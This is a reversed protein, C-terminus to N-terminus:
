RYDKFYSLCRAPVESVRWDSFESCPTPPEEPAFLGAAVFLGVVGLVLLLIGALALRTSWHMLNWPEDWWIVKTGECWYHPRAKWIPLGPEWWTWEPNM